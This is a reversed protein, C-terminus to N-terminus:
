KNTDETGNYIHCGNRGHKKVYYLANDANNFLNNKSNNLDNFAIGVSLSVPPLMKHERSLISNIKLIKDEISKALDITVDTMIIAFEDGGIRCVHDISRFNEALLRSVKKLIKDGIEHGYTDNVDKFKDVDMIILAFNNKTTDISTLIQEFSGRNLLGTLFDHDAQYKTNKEETIDRAVYLVEIAKGTKLRSKVIFRAQMWRNDPDKYDIVITNTKDLRSSLTNLDLFESVLKKYEEGIFTTIVVNKIKDFNGKKEIIKEMLPISSLVEYEHTRINAQFITSYITSLSNIVEIREKEEKIRAEKLANERKQAERQEEIIKDIIRFGVVVNDTDDIRRCDYQYYHIVGDEISRYTGVYKDHKAFVSRINEVNLSAKVKKKDESYVNERIWRDVVDDFGFTIKSVDRIAKVNYNDDLRIARATGEKMNAVFVNRFSKSLAKIIDHQEDVEKQHIAEKEKKANEMEQHEKIIDDINQFGIIAFKGDKSVKSVNYQFYHIQGNRFNRYNGVLEDKTEFTKLVNSISLAHLVKDRDDIYVITDVWKKIALDFSFEEHTEKGPVDVYSADLKLIRATKKELNIWYVNEYHRVLTDFAMQQEKLTGHIEDIM